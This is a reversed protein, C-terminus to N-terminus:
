KKAMNMSIDTLRHATVNQFSYKLGDELVYSTIEESDIVEGTVEDKTETVTTKVTYPMPVTVITTEGAAATVSEAYIDYPKTGTKFLLEFSVDINDISKNEITVDVTPEDTLNGYEDLYEDLHNLDISIGTISYDYTEYNAESKAESYSFTSNDEQVSVYFQTKSLDIQSLLESDIKVALHQTENPMISLLASEDTYIQENDSNYFTSNVTVTSLTIANNNTINLEAHGLYKVTSASVSVNQAYTRLEEEYDREVFTSASILPNLQAATVLCINKLSTDTYYPLQYTSTTSGSAQVSVSDAITDVIKSEANYLYVLYSVTTINDSSNNVTVPITLHELDTDGISVNILNSDVTKYSGQASEENTVSLTIDTDAASVDYPDDLKSTDVTIYRKENPAIDSQVSSDTLINYDDKEDASAKKVDSSYFTSSINLTNIWDTSTNTLTILIHGYFAQVKATVKGALADLATDDTSDVVPTVVQAKTQIISPATAAPKKTPLATATPVPANTTGPTQSTGPTDPKNTDTSPQSSATGPAASTDPTSPFLPKKTTIPVPTNVVPTASASPKQTVSPKKTPTTDPKVTVKPVSTTDADDTDPSATAKSTPAPTKKVSPKKTAKVSKKKKVTLKCKYKKKGYKAYINCKGNKKATIKGKKNVTAIKKNSSSWKIKSKKKASVGSLKLTYTKKVYLSLTSKNLKIKKRTAFATSGPFSLSSIIVSLAIMLSLLTNKKKM